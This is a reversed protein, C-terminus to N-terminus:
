LSAGYLVNTEDLLEHIDEEHLCRGAAECDGRPLVTINPGFGTIRMPVESDSLYERFEPDGPNLEFAVHHPCGESCGISVCLGNMSSKTIEDERLVRLNSKEM